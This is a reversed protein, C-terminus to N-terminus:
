PPRLSPTRVRTLDADPHTSPAALCSCICSVRLQLSIPCRHIHVSYLYPLTRCPLALTYAWLHTQTRRPHSRTCTRVTRAIGARRRPTHTPAESSASPRHRPPICHIWQCHHTARVPPLSPPRAHHARPREQVHPRLTTMGCPQSICAHM